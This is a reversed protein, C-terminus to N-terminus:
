KFLNKFEKGVSEVKDKVVNVKDQAAMLGKVVGKKGREAFFQIGKAFAEEGIWAEEPSKTLQAVVNASKSDMASAVGKSKLTSPIQCRDFKKLIVDLANEKKNGIVMMFAKSLTESSIERTGFLEDDLLYTLINGNDNYCATYFARQVTDTNITEKEFRSLFVQVMQLVDSEVTALFIDQLSNHLQELKLINLLLSFCDLDKSMISNIVWREILDSEMTEIPVYGIVVKLIRTEKTCLEYMNKLLTKHAFATGFTSLVTHVIEENENKLARETINRLTDDSVSSGMDSKLLFHITDPDNCKGANVLCMQFDNSSLCRM